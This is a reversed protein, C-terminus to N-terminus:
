SKRRKRRLFPMASLGGVFTKGTHDKTNEQLSGLGKSNGDNSSTNLHDVNSTTDDADMKGRDQLGNLAGKPVLNSHVSGNDIDDAEDLFSSRHSLDANGSATASAPGHAGDTDSEPEGEDLCFGGGMNLYDKSFRAEFSLDVCQSVGPQSIECKDTCLGGGMELSDGHLCEELAPHGANHGAAADGCEQEVAEEDSCETNSQDSSKDVDDAEFHNVTYNVPRRVRTSQFSLLLVIFLSSDNFNPLLSFSFVFL